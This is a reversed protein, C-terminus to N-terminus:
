AGVEPGLCYLPGDRRRTEILTQNSADNEYKAMLRDGRLYFSWCQPNQITNSEYIFCVQPGDIYWYGDTCEGDLFSWRVRRNDFYEEVGYEGSPGLYSFTEGKVIREFEDPTIPRDNAFTLTPLLLAFLFVLYRMGFSVM